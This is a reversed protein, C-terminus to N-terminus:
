TVHRKEVDNKVSSNFVRVFLPLWDADGSVFLVFSPRVIVYILGISSKAREHSGPRRPKLYSLHKQRSL